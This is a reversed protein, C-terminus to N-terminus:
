SHEIVEPYSKTLDLTPELKGGLPATAIDFHTYKIPHTFADIVAKDLEKKRGIIATIMYDHASGTLDKCHGKKPKKLSSNSTSYLLDAFLIFVVIIAIGGVLTTM